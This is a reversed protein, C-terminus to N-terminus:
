EYALVSETRLGVTVRHSSLEPRLVDLQYAYSLLLPSLEWSVTGMPLLRTSRDRDESVTFTPAAPDTADVAGTVSRRLDISLAGGLGIGLAGRGLFRYEEFLELQWRAGSRTIQDGAPEAAQWQYHGQLATLFRSKLVVDLGLGLGWRNTGDERSYVLNPLRAATAVAGRYAHFFRDGPRPLDGIPVAMTIGAGKLYSVVGLVRGECDLLPGGSNGPNVTGDVEITGNDLAESGVRGWSVSWGGTKAGPHGIMLVPLGVEPTRRSAPIPPPPDRFPAELELLALDLAQDGNHVVRARRTEGDRAVVNVWRGHEVVHLATVILTPSEFVFGAGWGEPTEVRVVSEVASRFARQEWGPECAKPVPEGPENAGPENVGPEPPADTAPGAPPEGRDDATAPPATTPPAARSPAAWVGFALAAAGGALVSRASVVRDAARHVCARREGRRDTASM